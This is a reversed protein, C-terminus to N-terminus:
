FVLLASHNFEIEACPDSNDCTDSNDYPPAYFLPPIGGKSWKGVHLARPDQICCYSLVRVQLAATIENM